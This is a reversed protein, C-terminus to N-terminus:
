LVFKFNYYIHLPIRCIRQFLLNIWRKLPNSIWSAFLIQYAIAVLIVFILIFLSISDPPSTVIPKITSYLNTISNDMNILVFLEIIIPMIRMSTFKCLHYFIFAFRLRSCSRLLIISLSSNMNLALNNLCALIL